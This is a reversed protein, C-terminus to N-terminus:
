LEQLLVDQGSNTEMETLLALKVQRTKSSRSLSKVLQNAFREQLRQHLGSLVNTEEM